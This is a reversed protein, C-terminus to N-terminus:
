KRGPPNGDSYGEALMSEDETVRPEVEPLSNERYPRGEPSEDALGAEEPQTPDSPMTAFSVVAPM